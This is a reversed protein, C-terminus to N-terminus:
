LCPDLSTIHLTEILQANHNMIYQYQIYLLSIQTKAWNQPKQGKQPTFILKLSFSMFYFKTRKSLQLFYAIVHESKVVLLFTSIKPDPWFSAQGRRGPDM